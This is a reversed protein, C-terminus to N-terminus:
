PGRKKLRAIAEIDDYPISLFADVADSWFQTGSGERVREFAPDLPMASRYPRNQTMADFADCLPFIRAGFPIEM